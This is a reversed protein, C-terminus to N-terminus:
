TPKTTIEFEAPSKSGLSSHRRKRNYFVEIYEFIEAQAEERTIFKEHYIMETKLTAYFSEMPANDWCNGKRSMSGVMRHDSLLQQYDGAAYQKGQDSHHLLGAQPRRQVLAQHLASLTLEENVRHSMACGVIRRSYLDIVTALYLWGESTWVYTIDSLWVLNPATVTFQRKLLNPAVPLQHKSDTTARFKKVTKPRIGNDRMLRAILKENCVIGRDQLEDTIRPSGYTRRSEFFVQRIQTLLQRNHYSRLSEPRVRWDYYGSRSLQLSRRM